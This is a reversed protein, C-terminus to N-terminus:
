TDSGPSWCPRTARRAPGSCCSRAEQAARKIDARKEPTRDSGYVFSAIRLNNLAADAARVLAEFAAAAPAQTILGLLRDFTKRWAQVLRGREEWTTVLTRQSEILEAAGTLYDAYRDKADAIPQRDAEIKTRDILSDLLEFKDGSSKELAALAADVAAITEALRIDRTVVWMRQFHVEALVADQAARQREKATGIIQLTANGNLSINVVMGVVLLVGLTASLALKTGIRHFLEFM